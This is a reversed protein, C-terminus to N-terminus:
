QAEKSFFFIKGWTLMFPTRFFAVESYGRLIKRVHIADM